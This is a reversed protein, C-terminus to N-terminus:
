GTRRRNRRQAALDINTNQLQVLSLKGEDIQMVLDKEAEAKRRSQGTAMVMSYCAIGVFVHPFVGVLTGLPPRTFHDFFAFVFSGVIATELAAIATLPVEIWQGRLYAMSILLGIVIYSIGWAQLPALFTLAEFSAPNIRNEGSLTFVLGQGVCYLVINYISIRYGISFAYNRKIKTSAFGDM